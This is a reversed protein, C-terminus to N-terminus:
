SRVIHGMLLRQDQRRIVLPALSPNSVQAAAGLARLLELASGGAGAV